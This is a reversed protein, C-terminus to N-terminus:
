AETQPTNEATTGTNEANETDTNPSQTEKLFKLKGQLAPIVAFGKGTFSEQLKEFSDIEEDFVEQRCFKFADDWLYKLVKNKFQIIDIKGNKAKVFWCGIRKDEMSSLNADNSKKSILSNIERQFNEWTVNGDKSVIVANQQNKEEDSTGFTNEVLQMDWRRQFANDLTFVNQDSTNMTALLSLNPPLRIGTNSSFHLDNIEISKQKKDEENESKIAVGKDNPETIDDYVNERIYWNLYDNSIFYKSWGQTFNDDNEDVGLRDLLQFIDGFIAAANGRNIEEIILCYKEDPHQYAKRLIKAFPGPTFKYTVKNDTNSDSIVPMVQGVFDANTYEPHFVVRMTNTEIQEKTFDFHTKLQDDIKYSKGSGPVGYYIIQRPHTFLKDTLVTNENQSNLDWIEVPLKKDKIETGIIESFVKRLEPNQRCIMELLTDSFKREQIYQLADNRNGNYPTLSITIPNLQINRLELHKKLSFPFFICVGYKNHGEETPFLLQPESAVFGVGYIGRCDLAMDLNDFQGQRYCFVIDGKHMYIRSHDNLPTYIISKQWFGNNELTNFSEKSCITFYSRHETTFIEKVYNTISTDESSIYSQYIEKLKNYYDTYEEKINEISAFLQNTYNM